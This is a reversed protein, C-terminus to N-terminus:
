LNAYLDIKKQVLRSNGDAQWYDGTDTNLCTLWKYPSWTDICIAHENYRINGDKQSTHGVVVKKGSYHKKISDFRNWYLATDPQSKMDVNEDISAHVYIFDENEYYPITKEFFQWHEQPIADEWNGEFDYKYSHLTEFGGYGQWFNFKDADYRSEMAMIEHNGRITIVHRQQKLEILRDIVEKSFDGRDIYDGLFIVLDDDDFPISNLLTNLATLNGHIDGVAYTAM